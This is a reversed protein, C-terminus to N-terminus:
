VGVVVDSMSRCGRLPSRLLPVVALLGICAAILITSRPGWVEASAGGLLAGAPRIGYNISSFAGVLRGRMADPMVKIMVSNITIDYLMISGTVLFTTGAYLAIKAASPAQGPTLVLIFFPLSFGICGILTVPFLGIRTSLRAAFLAGVLAGFAGIGQATGIAAPGLQLNRTAFILVVALIAFNALNMLTTCWLTPALWRDRVLTRMGELAEQLVPRSERESAPEPVKLGLLSAASILYSACDAVVALPAGLVQTLWGAAPPGGLGTASRATSNLSNATVIDDPDIIRVFFTVYATQSIVGAVGVTAAVVILHIITLGDLLFMAPITALATARALDACILVRRKVRVRDVMTGIVLAFLYPLWSAATLVGVQWASADLLIIAIMPLALATIQDGFM